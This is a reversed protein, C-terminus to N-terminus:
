ALSDHAHLIMRDVGIARIREGQTAARVWAYGGVGPGLNELREPDVDDRGRGGAKTM